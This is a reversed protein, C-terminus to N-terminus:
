WLAVGQGLKRGKGLARRLAHCQRERSHQELFYSHRPVVNRGHNYKSRVFFFHELNIPAQVKCILFYPTPKVMSFTPM